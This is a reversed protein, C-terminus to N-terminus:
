AFIIDRGTRNGYLLFFRSNRERSLISRILSLIPTIGSGAAIAAYSRAANARLPLTFRGQPPMVDLTDGAALNEAFASFVGGPVRKVAVRLEGDDLGSCISYCRRIDAGGPRARLTLYQGPRFRFAARLADPVAFAISLCDPTERRLDSVALPHFRPRVM